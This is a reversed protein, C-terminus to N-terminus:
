SLLHVAMAERSLLHVAMAERSLLRVAMAERSLLHVVMAERCRYIVHASQRHLRALLFGVRGICLSSLQVVM